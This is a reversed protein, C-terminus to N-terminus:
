KLFQMSYLKTGYMRFVLQVPRGALESVDIGKDIWEVQADSFDGNIYICDDIDYGEIPVGREDLVGVQTYGTAGTDINLM